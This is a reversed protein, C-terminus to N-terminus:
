HTDDSWKWRAADTVDGQLVTLSFSGPEKCDNVIPFSKKSLEATEVTPEPPSPGAKVVGSEVPWTAIM